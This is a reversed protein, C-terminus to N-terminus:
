ETVIWPNRRFQDPTIGYRKRFARCLYNASAFGSQGAVVDLKDDSRRLIAAAVGLRHQTIYDGVSVGTAERFQRTIHERSYGISQALSTVNFHCDSSRGDIMSIAERLLASTTLQTAKLASMVAMLLHYVRGSIQYRDRLTGAVHQHAISLLMSQVASQSGFNLIHGFEKIIRLCMADATHGTIGIFVQEYPDHREPPYGYVFDGPIRDLFAMGSTVLRRNGGREYFCAGSITLQLVHHSHDARARSDWLYSADHWTEHSAGGLRLLPEDTRAWLSISNM